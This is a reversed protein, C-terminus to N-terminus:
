PHVTVSGTMGSHITCQYSYIGAQPFTVPFTGSSKDGSNPVSTPTNTWTVNHPGAAWTFTVTGGAKVDIQNPTFVDGGSGVSVDGSTPINNTVAVAAPSSSVQDVTATVQADGV